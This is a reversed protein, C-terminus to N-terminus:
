PSRPSSTGTPPTWRRGLEEASPPRGPLPGRSEGPRLADLHLALYRHRLARRRAADGLRIAALQEFIMVIDNFQVDARVAGAARARRFLRQALKDTAGALARLDDTPTFTGALRVTLSHVDADVIGTIFTALADWPGTGDALAAEAIAAFRHLGEACLTQLLVEKSAYRRYLAGVGVGAEVAVASIPAHPDRLFVTRAADLIVGDNRAAQARRGSLAPADTM